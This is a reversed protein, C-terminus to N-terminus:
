CRTGALLEERLAKCVQIDTDRMAGVQTAASDIEAFERVALDQDQAPPLPILMKRFAGLNFHKQATGATGRLFQRRGSESNLFGTLYHPRLRMVPRAIILDICNAGDLQPGIVAADGPRGSRVIVVDGTRLQSKPHLRHGGDSIHVLEDLNFRDPFVNLSRIAPVGDRVYYKAPTVVIGVTTDCIAGAEVREVAKSAHGFWKDDVAASMAHLSAFLEDRQQVVADAAWLIEAIRRQENKPPLAFEYKALETWKTRPSLSGASTQLAQEFFSESQVIFPLLEPMMEESVAEFVLIDGSCIGDFGAYAVKRQYARRKGFLVQGARFARTFSTGDAVNGWERIHLSGPEIHELGVVRELGKSLPDREAIDM